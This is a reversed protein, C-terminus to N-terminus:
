VIKCHEIFQPDSIGDKLVVPEWKDSVTEGILATLEDASYKGTAVGICGVTVGPGCRNMDYCWRAALIDAPADGVHIVRNIKQNASLQTCARRYCLAIQEGRDKYLYSIDEIINSCYDSGFGGLIPCEEVGSWCKIQDAAPKGFIGTQYIGCSRMKKRAIGEVNGTVLGCVFSGTKSSDSALKSLTDVVGPLPILDESVAQDSLSGFYEHMHQFLSPLNESGISPPMNLASNLMNLLIIGDTSGHYRNAPIIEMPDKYKTLFDDPAIKAVAQMFAKAHTSPEQNKSNVNSSLLTGDVDFTILTVPRIINDTMMRSNVLLFSSKAVNVFRYINSRFFM